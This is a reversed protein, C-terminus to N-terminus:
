RKGARSRAWYREHLIPVAAVLQSVFVFLGSRTATASPLGHRLHSVRCAGQNKGAAGERSVKRLRARWRPARCYLGPLRRRRRRRASPVRPFRPDIPPLRRPHPGPAAAFDHLDDRPRHRHLRTARARGRRDSPSFTASPAAREAAPRIRAKSRPAVALDARSAARIRHQSPPPAPRRRWRRSRAPPSPIRRWSKRPTDAGTTRVACEQRNSPGSRGM